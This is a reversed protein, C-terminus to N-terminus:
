MIGQRFFLCIIAHKASSTPSSCGKLGEWQQHLLVMSLELGLSSPKKKKKEKKKKEEKSVPSRQTARASSCSV